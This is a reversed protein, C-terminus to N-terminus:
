LVRGAASKSVMRRAVVKNQAMLWLTDDSPHAFIRDTPTCTVFDGNLTPASSFIRGMHWFDLTNRFDGCVRSPHERYEMYRDQYGFVDGGSAPDAYVENNYVEQQGIFALEKQYWDEKTTKIYDRHIGNNYMTRPRLSFMTMIYGHEEIFRRYKNSRMAAIGHGAMEGVYYPGGSPVLATSLVESINVPTQGGGLYEPRQLRSDAPDRVGLYRLYETYRSGYRARAEQYRQIAFARRVDNINAGTAAALDAYLTGNPDVYGANGGFLMEGSANSGATAASVILSDDSKKRMLAGNGVGTNYAVPASAGLPITVDSGKQTWPRASTFYDKEWAIQAISLDNIGRATVLDQDRYYENFILNYARVPMANIDIGATLPIGLYDLLDGATGTTTIVPPVEANDGDPGGTIFDEWTGNGDTGDNWLLRAPVFFHHVRAILPHMIPALMPSMRLLINTHQQFTDGPLAPICSVPILQGPDCTALNYHSLNHKHRM